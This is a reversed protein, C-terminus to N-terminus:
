FFKKKVMSFVKKIKLNKVHFTRLTYTAMVVEQLLRVQVIGYTETGDKPWYLDCKRQTFKFIYFNILKLNHFIKIIFQHFLCCPVFSFFIVFLNFSPYSLNISVGDDMMEAHRQLYSQSFFFTPIFSIFCFLGSFTFFLHFLSLFFSLTDIM